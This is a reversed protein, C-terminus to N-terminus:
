VPQCVLLLPTRGTGSAAARDRAAQIDAPQAVRPRALSAEAERRSRYPGHFVAEDGFTREGRGNPWTVVYHGRALPHGGRRSYARQYSEADILKFQGFVFVVEPAPQVPVAADHQRGAAPRGAGAAYDRGNMEQYSHNAM